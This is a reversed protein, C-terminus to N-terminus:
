EKETIQIHTYFSEENDLTEQAHYKYAKAEEESNWEIIAM